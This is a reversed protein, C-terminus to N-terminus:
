LARLGKLTGGPLARACSCSVYRAAAARNTASKSSVVCAQAHQTIAILREPLRHSRAWPYQPLSPKPMQAWCGIARGSESRVEFRTVYGFADQTNWRSALRTAYEKNCVPYYLIPQVPLRSPSRRYGNAAILDFEAQGVHRYLTM